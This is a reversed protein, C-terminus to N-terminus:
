TLESMKLTENVSSFPKWTTKASGLFLLINLTSMPFPPQVFKSKERFYTVKGDRKLGNGGFQARSLVAEPRQKRGAQM